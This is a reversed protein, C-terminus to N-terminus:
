KMAELITKVAKIFDEPEIGPSQIKFKKYIKRIRDKMIGPDIEIGTFEKEIFGLSGSPILTFDGTIDIDEIINDKKLLTIRILGGPSKYNGEFLSVGTSIKVKRDLFKGKRYLWTKDNLKKRINALMIREDPYLDKEFFLEAGFKKQVEEFFVSIVDKRKPVDKQLSEYERKINTVYDRVNKYLKDRFKESPVKLIMSMLDYNFDFMFSGVIVTSQGIQVAGTGGIKKGEIQLDNIPRHFVKLGLRNYTKVAPELFDGYIKNVDGPIRDKNFIFQFFVQDSDLLVAGGGVERRLVPINSNKCFDLDIEKEMDQFFGICAYSEVPSIIILTGPTNEEFSHAVAHYIAQSDLYNYDGYDLVRIKNIKKYGAVEPM